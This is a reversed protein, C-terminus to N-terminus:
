FKPFTEYVTFGTDMTVGYMTKACTNNVKEQGQENGMYIVEQLQGKGVDM